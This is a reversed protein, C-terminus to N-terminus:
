SVMAGASIALVQDIYFSLINLMNCKLLFLYIVSSWM